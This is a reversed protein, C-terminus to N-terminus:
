EIHFDYDQALLHVGMDVAGKLQRVASLVTERRSDYRATPSQEKESAKRLGDAAHAARTAIEAIRAPLTEKNIRRRLQEREDITGQLNEELEAVRRKYEQEKSHTLCPAGM